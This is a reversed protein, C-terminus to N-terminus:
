APVPDVSPGDRTLRAQLFRFAKKLNMAAATWYAQLLMRKQGYYRARDLGHNCNSHAFSGEGNVHQAWRADRHQDTKAQEKARTFQEAFDSRSVKRPGEGGRCLNATPCNLCAEVPARYRTRQKQKDYGIRKLEAGEHCIFINEEAIYTFYRHDLKGKAVTPECVPVDLRWKRNEFHKLTQGSQFEGDASLSLQGDGLRWDKAYQDVWNPFETKNAQSAERVVVGTIIGQSQTSFYGTEFGLTTEKTKGAAGRRNKTIWYADPDGQSRTLTKKQAAPKKPAPKPAPPKDVPKEKQETAKPLDRKDLIRARAKVPTLDFTVEEVKPPGTDPRPRATTDPPPAKASSSNVPAGTIERAVPSQSATPQSAALSLRAQAIAQEVTKALFAQWQEHKLRFALRARLRVLAIRFSDNITEDKELRVFWRYLLNHKLETDVLFKESRLNKINLLLLARLLNGVRRAPAGIPSFAPAVFELLLQDLDLLRDIEQLEDPSHQHNKLWAEYFAQSEPLLQPKSDCLECNSWRIRM